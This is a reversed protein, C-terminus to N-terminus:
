LFCFRNPENETVTCLQDDPFKIHHKLLELQVDQNQKLTLNTYELSIVAKNSIAHLFLWFGWVFVVLFSGM